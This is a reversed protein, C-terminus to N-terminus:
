CHKSQFQTREKLHPHEGSRLISPLFQLLSALLVSLFSLHKQLLINSNLFFYTLPRHKNVLVFNLTFINQLHTSYKSKRAFVSMKQQQVSSLRLLKSLYKVM